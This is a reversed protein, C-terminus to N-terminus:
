PRFGNFSCELLQVQGNADTDANTIYLLRLKKAGPWRHMPANTSFTQTANATPTFAFSWQHTTGTIEGTQDNPVPAFVFLLAANAGSGAITKISVNAPGGFSYGIDFTNTPSPNYPRGERDSWLTADSFVNFYDGTGNTVIVRSGSNTFILGYANTGASIYSSLNTFVLANTITLADVGQALFSQRLHNQASSVMTLGVCLGAVLWLKKTVNTITKM